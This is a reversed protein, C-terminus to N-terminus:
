FRRLEPLTEEWGLEGCDELLEVSRLSPYVPKNM